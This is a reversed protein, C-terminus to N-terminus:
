GDGIEEKGMKLVSEELQIRKYKVNKKREGAREMREGVFKMVAQMYKEDRSENHLGEFYTFQKCPFPYSDFLAQSHSPSITTDGHSVLFILPIDDIRKM